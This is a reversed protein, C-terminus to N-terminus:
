QILWAISKFKFNSHLIYSHSCPQDFPLVRTLYYFLQISKHNLDFGYACFKTNSIIYLIGYNISICKKNRLILLSQDKITENEAFLQALYQSLM